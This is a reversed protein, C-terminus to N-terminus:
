PVGSPPKSLDGACAADIVKGTDDYCRRPQDREAGDPKEAQRQGDWKPLCATSSAAAHSIREEDCSGTEQEAKQSSTGSQHQCQQQVAKEVKCYGGQALDALM